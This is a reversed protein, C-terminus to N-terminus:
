KDSFEQKLKVTAGQHLRLRYHFNLKKFIFVATLAELRLQQKTILILFPFLICLIIASISTM